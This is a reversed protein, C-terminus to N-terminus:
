FDNDDNEMQNEGAALHNKLSSMMKLLRDFKNNVDQSLSELNDEIKRFRTEINPDTSFNLSQNNISSGNCNREKARAKFYEAQSTFKKVLTKKGNNFSCYLVQNTLPEVSEIKDVTYEVVFYDKDYISKKSIIKVSEKNYPVKACDCAHKVFSYSEAVTASEPLYCSTVLASDIALQQYTKFRHGGKRLLLRNMANSDIPNIRIKFGIPTAIININEIHMSMRDNYVERLLKLTEKETATTFQVCLNSPTYDMDVIFAEAHHNLALSSKLAEKADKDKAIAQLIFPKKNNFWPEKQLLNGPINICYAMNEEESGLLIINIGNSNDFIEAKKNPQQMIHRTTTKNQQNLQQNENLSYKYRNDLIKFQTRPTENIDPKKNLITVDKKLNPQQLNLKQHGNKPNPSKQNFKHRQKPTNSIQEIEDMLEALQQEYKEKLLKVKNELVALPDHTRM